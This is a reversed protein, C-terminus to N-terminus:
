RRSLGHRRCKGTSNSRSIRTAVHARPSPISESYRSLACYGTWRALGTPPSFSDMGAKKFLMRWGVSERGVCPVVM